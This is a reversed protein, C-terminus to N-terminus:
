SLRGGLGEDCVLSKSGLMCGSGGQARLHPYVAGVFLCKPDLPPYISPRPVILSRGFGGLHGMLRLFYCPEPTLGSHIQCRIIAM